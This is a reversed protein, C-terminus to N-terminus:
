STAPASAGAKVEFTAALLLPRPKLGSVWIRGFRDVVELLPPDLVRRVEADVHDPVAGAFAEAVSGATTAQTDADGGLSIALRIGKEM